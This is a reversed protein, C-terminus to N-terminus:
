PSHQHEPSTAMLGLSSHCADQSWECCVPQAAMSQSPIVISVERKNQTHQAKGPDWQNISFFPKKFPM